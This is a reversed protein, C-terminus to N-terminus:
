QRPHAFFQWWALCCEEMRFAQFPILTAPDGLPSQAFRLPALFPDPSLM